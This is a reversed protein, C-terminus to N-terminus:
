QDLHEHLYNHVLDNESNIWANEAKLAEIEAQAQLTHLSRQCPWNYAPVPKEALQKNKAWAKLPERNLKAQSAKQPCDAKLHGHQKGDEKYYPKGCRYSHMQRKLALLHLM